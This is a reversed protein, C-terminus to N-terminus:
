QTMKVWLSLQNWDGFSMMVNLGVVACHDPMFSRTVLVTSRIPLLIIAVKGYNYGIFPFSLVRIGAKLDFFRARIFVTANVLQSAVVGLL